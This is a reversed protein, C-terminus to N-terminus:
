VALEDLETATLADLDKRGRPQELRLNGFPNPRAHLGDNIADGLM